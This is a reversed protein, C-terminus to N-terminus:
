SVQELGIWKETYEVRHPETDFSVKKAPLRAETNPQRLISKPQRRRRLNTTARADKFSAVMAEARELRARRAHLEAWM